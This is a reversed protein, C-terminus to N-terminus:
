PFIVEISQAKRSLCIPCVDISQDCGGCVSLHRCPLHLIRAEEEQCICCRTMVDGVVGGTARSTADNEDCEERANNFEAQLNCLETRSQWAQFRWTDTEAAAESVKQMLEQNKARM